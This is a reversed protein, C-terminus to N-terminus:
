SLMGKLKEVMETPAPDIKYLKALYYCTNMSLLIGTLLRYVKDGKPLDIIVSSVHKELLLEVTIKMREAIRPHDEPDRLMVAVRNGDTQTYGTTEYHNAEPFNNWSAPVKADENLNIQWIRALYALDLPGYIAPEKKFLAQATKEGVSSATEKELKNAATELKKTLGDVVGCNELITTLTAFSLGFGWRPQFGSWMEPYNLHTVNDAECKEQLKGGKYVGIIKLGRKITEDYCSLTEETNGSFSSIIVLTSENVERPLKYSRAAFIYKDNESITSILEAAMSSAGMGCIVARDFDGEVKTNRALDIGQKVFKPFNDIAKRYNHKDFDEPM